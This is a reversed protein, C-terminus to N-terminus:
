FAKIEQREIMGVGRQGFRFLQFNTQWRVIVVM